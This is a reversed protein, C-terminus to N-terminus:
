GHRNVSRFGEAGEAGGPDTLADPAEGAEGRAVEDSLWLKPCRPEMGIVALPHQPCGFGDECIIEERSFIAPLAGVTRIEPKEVKSM